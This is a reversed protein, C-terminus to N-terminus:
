DRLRCAVLVDFVVTTCILTEPIQFFTPPTFAPVPLAGALTPEPEALVSVVPVLSATGHCSYAAHQTLNQSPERSLFKVRNYSLVFPLPM